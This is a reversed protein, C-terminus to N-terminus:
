EREETVSGTLHAKEMHLQLNLNTTIEKESCQMETLLKHKFVIQSSLQSEKVTM